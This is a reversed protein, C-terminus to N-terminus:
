VRHCSRISGEEGDTRCRADGDVGVEGKRKDKRIDVLHTSSEREKEKPCAVCADSSVARREKGKEKEILYRLLRCTEDGKKRKPSLRLEASVPLQEKKKKRRRDRKYLPIV